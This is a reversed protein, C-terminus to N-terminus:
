VIWDNVSGITQYLVSQKSHGPPFTFGNKPFYSNGKKFCVQLEQGKQNSYHTNKTSEGGLLPELGFLPMRNLM